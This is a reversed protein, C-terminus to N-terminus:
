SAGSYKNTFHHRQQLKNVSTAPTASGTTSLRRSAGFASQDGIRTTAIIRAADRRHSGGRAGEIPTVTTKTTHVITTDNRGHLDDNTAAAPTTVDAFCNTRRM